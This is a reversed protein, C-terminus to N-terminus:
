EAVIKKYNNESVETVVNGNAAKLGAEFADVEAQTPFSVKHVQAPKIQGFENIEYMEVAKEGVIYYYFFEEPEEEQKNENIRKFSTYDLVAQKM